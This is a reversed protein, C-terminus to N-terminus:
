SKGRAVKSLVVLQEWLALMAPYPTLPRRFEDRPATYDGVFWQNLSAGRDALLRDALAMIAANDLTWPRRAGPFRYTQGVGSLCLNASAVPSMQFRLYPRLFRGDDELYRYAMEPGLIGVSRLLPFDVARKLDLLFHTGISYPTLEVNGSLIVRAADLYFSTLREDRCFVAVTNNVRLEFQPRRFLTRRLWIERCFAYGSSVEIEFNGPDFVLVDADVWIAREWGEALLEHAAAVRAYDAMLCKYREARGRLERPLFDFFSDDWFRYAYGKQEAWARVSRMCADIWEPVESTRFSQYVITKM